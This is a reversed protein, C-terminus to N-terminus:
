FHVLAFVGFSIVTLILVIALGIFIAKPRPSDDDMNKLNESLLMGHGLDCFAAYRTLPLPTQTIAMHRENVQSDAM